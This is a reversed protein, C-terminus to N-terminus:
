PISLIQGASLEHIGSESALNYILPCFPYPLLYWPPYVGPQLGSIAFKCRKLTKTIQGVCPEYSAEEDSM